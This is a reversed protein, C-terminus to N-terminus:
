CIKEFVELTASFYESISLLYLLHVNLLKFNLSESLKLATRVAPSSSDNCWKGPLQCTRTPPVTVFINPRLSAAS